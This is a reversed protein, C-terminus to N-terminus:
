THERLLKECAQTVEEPSIDRMCSHDQKCEKLHCPSCESDRRLVITKELNAHTYRPDTPGMIVVVRGPSLDLDVGKIIHADGFYKHLGRVKIIPAQSTEAETM